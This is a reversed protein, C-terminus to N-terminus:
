EGLSSDYRRWVGVVHPNAYKEDRMARLQESLYEILNPDKCVDRHCQLIQLMHTVDIFVDGNVMNRVIHIPYAQNGRFQLSQSKPIPSLIKQLWNLM